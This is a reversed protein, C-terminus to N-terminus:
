YIAAPLPLALADPEVAGAPPEAGCSRLYDVIQRYHYTAFRRHFDALRSFPMPGRLGADVVPDEDAAAVVAALAGVADTAEHVLALLGETDATRARVAAEETGRYDSHRTRWAEPLALCRLLITVALQHCSRGASPTIEELLPWPTAAVWEGLSRLVEETDELARDPKQPPDPLGLAEALQAVHIFPIQRGDAVAL